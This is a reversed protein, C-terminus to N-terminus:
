TSTLSTVDRWTESGVQKGWNQCLSCNAQLQKKVVCEESVANVRKVTIIRNVYLINKGNLMSVEFLAWIKWVAVFYLTNGPKPTMLEIHLIPTIFETALKSTRM